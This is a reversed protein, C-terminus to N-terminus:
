SIKVVQLPTQKTETRCDNTKEHSILITKETINKIKGRLLNRYSLQVFVVEDGIQLDNGIFDKM